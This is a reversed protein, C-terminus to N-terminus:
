SRAALERLNAFGYTIVATPDTDDTASAIVVGGRREFFTRSPDHAHCAATVRSIGDEQLWKAAHVLLATAIGRRRYRPLVFLGAIDARYGGFLSDHMVAIFGLIDSFEYAVFIKRATPHRDFPPSCNLWARWQRPRITGPDRLDPPLFTSAARCTHEVHMLTPSDTPSAQRIRLPM